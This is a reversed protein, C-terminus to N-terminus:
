KNTCFAQLPDKECDYRYVDVSGEYIIKGDKIVDLGTYTGLDMNGMYVHCIYTIVNGDVSLDSLEFRFDKDVIEKQMYERIAQSGVSQGHEDSMVADEAFFEMFGDVDGANIRENAAQMIAIPDTPQAPACSTIFVALAIVILTLILQQIKTNTKM